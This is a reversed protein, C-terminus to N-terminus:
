VINENEAIKPNISFNDYENTAEIVVHDCTQSM